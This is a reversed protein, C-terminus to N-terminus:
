YYDLSNNYIEIFDKKKECDFVIPPKHNTFGVCACVASTIPDNVALAATISAKLEFTRSLTM